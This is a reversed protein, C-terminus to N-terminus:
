AQSPASDAGLLAQVRRATDAEQIVAAVKGAEDIMVAALQHDRNAIHYGGFLQGTWDPLLILHDAPDYPAPIQAAGEHYTSEIFRAAAGRLMKPVAHLDIILAITLAEHNPQRRRLQEVLDRADHATHRDVFLLLVQRGRLDGLKFTRGSGITTLTFRPAPSGIPLPATTM